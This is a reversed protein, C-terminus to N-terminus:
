GSALRHNTTVLTPLLDLPRGHRALHPQRALVRNTRRTPQPTRRPLVEGSWLGLLAWGTFLVGWLFALGPVLTITWAAIVVAIVTALRHSGTGLQRGANPHDHFTRSM